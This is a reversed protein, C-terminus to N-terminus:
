RNDTVQTTAHRGAFTVKFGSPLLEGPNEIEFSCRFTNTAANIVPEFSKLRATLLKQVPQAAQLKYHENIRLQGYLASDIFLEVHLKSLDAVRLVPSGVSLTQGQQVDVSLIRGSFPARLNLTELLAQQQALEHQAQSHQEQAQQVGVTAREFEAKARDIEIAAIARRDTIQELRNLAATAIKLEVNAVDITARSQSAFQAIRVAALAVRNDVVGLLQGAKVTQSEKASLSILMGTSPIVMVADRNPEVIGPLSRTSTQLGSPRIQISNGSASPLKADREVPAAVLGATLSVLVVAVLSSRAPFHAVINKLM